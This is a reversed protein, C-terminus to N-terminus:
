LFFLLLLTVLLAIGVIMWMFYNRKQKIKAKEIEEAKEEDFDAIAEELERKQINYFPIQAFYAIIFSIFIFILIVPDDFRMEGYKHYFYYSNATFVFMPATLASGFIFKRYTTKLFILKSNLSELVPLDKPIDNFKKGSLIASVIMASLLFMSIFSMVFISSSSQDFLSGDVCSIILLTIAALSIVSKLVIDFIFGKKLNKSIRDSADKRYKHIKEKNMEFNVSPSGSAEKWVEKLDHEKM